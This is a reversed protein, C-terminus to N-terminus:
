LVRGRRLLWLTLALALLMLLMVWWFGGAHGVWPLGGVNMGFVGTILTIPLLITTVISLVFLNRNTAETLRGAIEEQLLRAREQVLELDSGLAELQEIAQRLDQREQHSYRAPLRSPMPALAARNASLHRRLRALGRRMQGLLKGRHHVQGALVQEELDDVQAALRNVEQSVTVALAEIYREFLKITSPIEHSAAPLCRRLHDVSKLPHRRMTIMRHADLYIRLTHYGEAEGHFEHDLDGLVAVVADPLVELQIRPEASLVLERAESPLGSREHLWRRARADNMNFHLWVPTDGSDTRLIDEGRPRVPTLEFACVLGVDDVLAHSM